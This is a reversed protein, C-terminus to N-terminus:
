RLHRHGHALPHDRHHPPATFGVLLSKALYAAITIPPHRPRLTPNVM